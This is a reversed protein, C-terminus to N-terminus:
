NLENILQKFQLHNNQLNFHQEWFHRVGSRYEESQSKPLLSLILNAIEKPQIDEPMLLGTNPNVLENCAGVDTALIPIGFSMAEMISIPLGEASSTSIFLSVAQSQYFEFVQQHNFQGLAKFQINPNQKLAEIAIQYQEITPDNKATLNQDGIHYWTLPIHIHQLAEAILYV